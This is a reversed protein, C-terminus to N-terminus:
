SLLHALADIVRAADTDTMAPFLPLSLAKAYYAEAGPLTREGYLGQYYPQRHVPIYHVQTGIGAAWLSRMFEERALGVSDFDILAIALHWAPRCDAIRGLPEIHPGMRTLEARYHEAIEARRAVFSDLRRLQSRGLACQLDTIRYNFGLGAVEYYWPHPGRAAEAARARNQWAAADRVQCHNRLRMLREHMAADNTTVAGGEGTTITKVPHFSFATMDAYSGDGIHCNPDGPVGRTGFAHAADDVVRAGNKETLRRIAKLDASQGALHVPFVAKIRGGEPEDFARKLSDLDMLGTKPDVDVFVVDANCFRAANATAVFTITPVAVADGPNLELAAAALHLAATGSSCAVAFKAGVAAAIELEFADVEPGTTLRDCELVASVASIDEAAISQRAYPIAHDTLDNM